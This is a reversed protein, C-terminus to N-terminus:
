KPSACTLMNSALLNLMSKDTTREIKELLAYFMKERVEAKEQSDFFNRVMYFGKDLIIQIALELTESPLFKVVASLFQSASIIGLHVHDALTRWLYSRDAPDSLEGVHELLVSLSELDLLARCYGKQQANPFFAFRTGDAQPLPVSYVGEIPDESAPIHIDRVVPHETFIGDKSSYV